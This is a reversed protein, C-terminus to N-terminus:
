APQRGRAAEECLLRLQRNISPGQLHAEVQDHRESKLRARIEATNACEGSRALEFARELTSPPSTMSSM